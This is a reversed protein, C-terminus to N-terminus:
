FVVEAHRVQKLTTIFLNICEKVEEPTTKIGYNETAMDYLAKINEIEYKYIYHRHGFFENFLNMLQLKSSM